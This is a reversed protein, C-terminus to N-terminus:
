CEIQRSWDEKTLFSAWINDAMSEGTEKMISEFYSPLPTHKNIM